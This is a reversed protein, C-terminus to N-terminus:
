QFSSVGKVEQCLGESNQVMHVWRDILVLSEGISAAGLGRGPISIRRIIGGHILEAIERETATPNQSLAHVHATSIIPPLNKRYNLVEAIRSSGMGARDPIDDFMKDAIYQLYQAADRLRLDTALARILGLDELRDEQTEDDTAKSRPARSTQTAPKRRPHNAFPSSSLRNNLSSKAKSIRSSYAATLQLVM